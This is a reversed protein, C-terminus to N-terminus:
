AGLKMFYLIVQSGPKFEGVPGVISQSGDSRIIMDGQEPKFNHAGMLCDYQGRPISGDAGIAETIGVSSGQSVFAILIGVYSPGAKRKKWTCVDGFEAILEKATAIDDDYNTM